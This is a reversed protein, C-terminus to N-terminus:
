AYKLSETQNLTMYINDYM